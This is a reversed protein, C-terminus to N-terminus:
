FLLSPEQQSTMRQVDVQYMDEPKRLESNPITGINNQAGKSCDDSNLWLNDSVPFCLYQLKTTESRHRISKSQM